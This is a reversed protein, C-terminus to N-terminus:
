RAPLRGPPRRPAAWGGSSAAAFRRGGRHGCARPSPQGAAPRRNWRVACHQIGLGQRRSAPTAALVAPRLISGSFDDTPFLGSVFKSAAACGNCQRTLFLSCRLSEARQVPLKVFMAPTLAIGSMGVEPVGDVGEEVGGVAAAGAAVGAVVAGMGAADGEVGAAELPIELICTAGSVVVVTVPLPWPSRTMPKAPFVRCAPGPFSMRTTVERAGGAEAEVGAGLVLPLPPLLTGTLAPEDAAGGPALAVEALPLAVAVGPFAEAVVVGVGFAPEGAAVGDEEVGAVAAAVGCVVWRTAPAPWSTRTPPGSGSMKVSPM